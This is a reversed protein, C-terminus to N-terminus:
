AHGVSAQMIEPASRAKSAALAGLFQATEASWRGVEAALVVRWRAGSTTAACPRPIGDVGVGQYLSLGDAIVELRRGDTTNLGPALDLERVLTNSVVRGGAEQCVRAAATQVSRSSPWQLRSAVVVRPLRRLLLRFSQLDFRTEQVFFLHVAGWVHPREPFAHTSARDQQVSAVNGVRVAERTQLFSSAALWSTSRSQQVGEALAEWTPVAFGVECLVERCQVVGRISESRTGHHMESIILHAVTPHRLKGVVRRPTNTFCESDWTRWTFIPAVCDQAHSRSRRICGSWSDKHLM